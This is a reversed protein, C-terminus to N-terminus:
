KGRLINLEAELHDERPIRLMINHETAPSTDAVSTPAATAQNGWTARSSLPRALAEKVAAEKLPVTKMVSKKRAGTAPM